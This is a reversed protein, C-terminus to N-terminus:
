PICNIYTEPKRSVHFAACFNNKVDLLKYICIYIIVCAQWFHLCVSIESLELESLCSIARKFILQTTNEVFISFDAACILRFANHKEM